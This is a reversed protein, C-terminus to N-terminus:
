GTIVAARDGLLLSAILVILVWVGIGPATIGGSAAAVANTFVLLFCINLISAIKTRGALNLALLVFLTTDIAGILIGRRLYDHAFFGQLLNFLTFGVIQIWVIRRFLKSQYQEQM